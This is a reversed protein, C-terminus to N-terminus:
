VENVKSLNSQQQRSQWRETYFDGTLRRDSGDCRTRLVEIHSAVSSTSAVAKPASCYYFRRRAKVYLSYSVDLADRHGVRDSGNGWTRSCKSRPVCYMAAHKRVDYGSSPWKKEARLSSSKDRDMWQETSWCIRQSRRCVDVDFLYTENRRIEVAHYRRCIFYLSDAFYGPNGSM